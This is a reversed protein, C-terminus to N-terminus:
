IWLEGSLKRRGGSVMWGISSDVQLHVQECLSAYKKWVRDFDWNILHRCADFMEDCFAEQSLGTMRKYTMVPDEGRKGQRFLEAIIPRGRKM